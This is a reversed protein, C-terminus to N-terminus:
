QLIQVLKDQNMQVEELLIDQSQAVQKFLEQFQRFDDALTPLPPM